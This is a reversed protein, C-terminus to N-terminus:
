GDDTYGLADKQGALAGKLARKGRSLLSEVAEVSVDLWEAIEPNGHGEFHRLLIAMRQREPLDLLAVRLADKRAAVLLTDDAGPAPDAPEEIEDLSASIRGRKRLRDTCLNATVRFLWTTVKARDPDWDPAIRWLRALAEQTVDEADAAQGLLRYAQAFVRSTLRQTLIRAASRDGSAYRALLAADDLTTEADLPMDM